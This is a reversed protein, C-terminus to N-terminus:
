STPMEVEASQGECRVTKTFHPPKSHPWSVKPAMSCDFEIPGLSSGNVAVRLLLPGATPPKGQSTLSTSCFVISGIPDLKRIAISQSM